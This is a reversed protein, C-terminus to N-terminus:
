GLAVAYAIMLSELDTGGISMSPADINGTFTDGAINAPTYGLANQKGNFTNWDISSLYGDALSTAQNIGITGTSSIPGGTLPSSTNVNTVTGSTGGLKKVVGNKDIVIVNASDTSTNGYKDIIQVM